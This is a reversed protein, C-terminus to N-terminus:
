NHDANNWWHITGAVAAVGVVLVLLAGFVGPVRQAPGAVGSYLAPVSFPFFEGYGIAAIIQALFTTVLLTAVAPLYGRGVSAAFGLVPVLLITLVSTGILRTLGATVVAGSWGPLGLGAGIAIGLVALYGVLVACWVALALFKASVIVARSTPLALLDRVCGDSFERGFIWAAAMGFVGWGGVGVIQALLSLFGSWDAVLGALEAKTGILGLARARQPDLGIFMFLGGVGAAVTFASLTLWWLRSRLLKLAEAWLAARV